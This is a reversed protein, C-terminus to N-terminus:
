AKSRIENFRNDIKRSNFVSTRTFSPSTSKPPFSKPPSSKLSLQLLDEEKERAMETIVAENMIQSESILGDLAM